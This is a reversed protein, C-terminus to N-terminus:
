AKSLSHSTKGPNWRDSLQLLYRTLQIQMGESRLARGQNLQQFCETNAPLYRCISNAAATRKRM